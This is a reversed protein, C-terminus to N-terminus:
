YAAQFKKIIEYSVKLLVYVFLLGIFFMESKTKETNCM